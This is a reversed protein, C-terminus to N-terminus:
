GDAKEKAERDAYSEGCTHVWRRGTFMGVTEPAAQGGCSACQWEEPLCRVMVQPQPYVRDAEVTQEKGTDRQIMLSVPVARLQRGLVANASDIVAIIADNQVTKGALTDVAPVELILQLTIANKGNSM